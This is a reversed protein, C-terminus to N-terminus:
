LKGSASEDQHEKPGQPSSSSHVSLARRTMISRIPRAVAPYPGQAEGIRQVQTEMPLSVSFPVLASLLWTVQTLGCPSDSFTLSLDQAGLENGQKGGLSGIAQKPSSSAKCGQTAWTHQSM